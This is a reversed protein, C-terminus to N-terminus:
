VERELFDRETGALANRPVLLSAQWILPATPTGGDRCFVSAGDALRPPHHIRGPRTSGNDQSLTAPNQRLSVAGEGPQEVRSFLANLGEAMTPHTLIADRLATHPLGALM